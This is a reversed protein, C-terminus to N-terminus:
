VHGLWHCSRLNPEETALWATLLQFSLSTGGGVTFAGGDGGRGGSSSRVCPGREM